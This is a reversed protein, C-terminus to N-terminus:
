VAGTPSGLPATQYYMKETGIALTCDYLGAKIATWAGHFATSGSACANEVNVISIKDLDIGLGYVSTVSVLMLTRLEDM